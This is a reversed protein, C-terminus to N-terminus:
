PNTLWFLSSAVGSDHINNIPNYAYYCGLGSISSFVQHDRRRASLNLWFRRLFLDHAM